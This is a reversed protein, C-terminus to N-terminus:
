LTILPSRYAAQLSATQALERLSVLPGHFRSVSGIAWIHPIPRFGIGANDLFRCEGDWSAILQLM